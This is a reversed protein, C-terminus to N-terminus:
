GFVEAAAIVRLMDPEIRDRGYADFFRNRYADTKLNFLLTWAGWFLDVHRDGVGGNGLDIFASFRWGDLMVNPLCYDGHLLTDTKLLHKNAELVSWAEEASSYAWPESFLSADFMGAAYNQTATALYTEMRNPVPCGAFDTEHLARLQTALTDCLRKPDSLYTAHTCDEGLVRATLLWDREACFYELVEAALGKAHFYRTLAAETALSGRPASKLYYGGDRDIFYVRAEPSCSSDYLAAGELMPRFDLPVDAPVATLLTRKM